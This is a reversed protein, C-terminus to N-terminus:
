VYLFQVIILSGGYRMPFSGRGSICRPPRPKPFFFFTVLYMASQLLIHVSLESMSPSFSVYIHRFAGGVNEEGKTQGSFNATGLGITFIFNNDGVTHTRIILLESLFDRM